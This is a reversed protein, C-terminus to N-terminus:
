IRVIPDKFYLVLLQALQEIEKMSNHLHLCIRLRELGAPVTPSLIPRVDFKNKQLTAALEKCAQNGPVIMLQIPGDAPLLKFADPLSSAEMVQRFLAVRELLQDQWEPHAELYQYAVLNHYIVAPSLATTFILSRSFNILYDRLWAPGLVAAGHGGISKGFTHMRAFIRDELGYASALGRGSPGWVGTAHAEDLILEAHYQECLQVIDLLPCCDGDMSYYSEVLVFCPGQVAKLKAELDSIDNHKFAIRDASSMRLGDHMSAHIMSDHIVTDGPRLVCSLLGTNADYGSNFLVATEAQHFQCLFGELQDAVPHHGSLLRSGSSGFSLDPNLQLAELVEKQLDADRSLGLYDNSCFDAAQKVIKFSRFRDQDKRKQLFGQIRNALWHKPRSM